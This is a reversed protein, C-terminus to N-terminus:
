GGEYPASRTARLREEKWGELWSLPWAVRNPSIQVASPFLGARMLRRLHVRSYRPIGHEAFQSYLVFKEAGPPNNPAAPLPKHKLLKQQYTPIDM